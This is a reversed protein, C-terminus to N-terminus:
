LLTIRVKSLHDLMSALTWAVFDPFDKSLDRLSEVAQQVTDDAEIEVISMGSYCPLQQAVSLVTVRV